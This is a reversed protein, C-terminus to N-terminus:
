MALHRHKQSFIVERYCSSATAEKNLIDVTLSPSAVNESPPIRFLKPSMIAKTFRYVKAGPRASPERLSHLGQM